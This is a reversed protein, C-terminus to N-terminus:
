LSVGEDNLDSCIQESFRKHLRGLSPLVQQYSPLLYTASCVVFALSVDSSNKGSGPNVWSCSHLLLEWLLEM